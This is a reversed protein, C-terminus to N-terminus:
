PLLTWGARGLRWNIFAVMDAWLGDTQSKTSGIGHGAEEEVRLLVVNDPNAARMRAALKAPQWSDVRSDNLGTTILYPPYATNARVHQYGDMALLNKFGTEDKITGFEPINAPGNVQFEARLASAMPVQDIVGAFLDPREMPAMGMPIGGASGGTIFLQERTTLGQAIATEACAILDRWTNPKAADKGGLRWAEGLEGGGRVHCIAYDIGENVVSFFRNGFYPFTSVGYSGYANILLPRPGSADAPRIVSFPVKVGDKATAQLDLARYANADFGQPVGGLKLDTFGGTAPDYSLAKAPTTWNDFLFTVGPHKPDAILSGGDISGKAPLAIQTARGDDGIRMLSSYLGERAVVYLGDSAAQIAEVLRGESAPLLTKAEAIPRGLPVSLVRFTPADKHSLLYLTGGRIDAGTVGDDRTLVRTWATKPALTAARPATWLEVENQVGNIVLGLHHSAGVQEQVLGFQEPRVPIMAGAVPDGYLAVPVGRLTWSVATSNVDRAAPNAPDEVALQNGYITRSDDSWAVGGFQMRELPGALAKGSASDYVTLGIRESGGESMGVAVKAGDPSASFYNIAMPTGGKAARLAAVGILKRRGARDEVMLDYNDSGPSRQLWFKHGGEIQLGNAITFGGTFAAIRE